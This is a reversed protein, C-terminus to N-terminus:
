EEEGPQCVSSFISSRQAMRDITRDLLTKLLGGRTTEVEPLELM